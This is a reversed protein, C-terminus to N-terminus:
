SRPEFELRVDSIAMLLNMLTPYDDRLLTILERLALTSWEPNGASAHAQQALEIHAAILEGVPLDVPRLIHRLYGFRGADTFRCVEVEDCIYINDLSFPPRPPLQHRIEGNRAYGVALVSIEVPLLRNARNDAIVAESVTASTALQRVVGDDNIRIDYILGYVELGGGLPVRVLAGFAPLDEEVMPCGFVFGTTSSNLLRGIAPLTNM